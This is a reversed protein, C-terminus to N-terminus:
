TGSTQATNPPVIPLKLEPINHCWLGTQPVYGTASRLSGDNKLIPATTIGRFHRLDWQGELGNLYLLAIDKSLPVPVREITGKVERLKIPRCIEHALVRVAEATVEIARPSCDEEVAVRVPAYGNFLFNDTKAILVALEKATATPDSENIILEPLKSDATAAEAQQQEGAGRSNTRYQRTPQEDALDAHPHRAGYALGDAFTTTFHDEGYEDIQGCTVAAAHLARKVEAADIWGRAIMTGMRIAKDRLTNHRNGEGAAALEDSSAQLAARAWAEGRKRDTTGASTVNIPVPGNTKPAPKSKAVKRPIIETARETWQELEDLAYRGGSYSLVEVPLWDGRKSNHSGPLRMLRPADHVADSALIAQLKKRLEIVRKVDESPEALLWHPQLGHGSDILFTPPCPLTELRNVVQTRTLDHGHDDVDAFVSPLQWCNAATRSTAGERLTATAFYIALENGPQDHEAIFQDVKGRSRTIVHDVEGRRLKSKPNRIACIFVKGQTGRFYQRIFDSGSPMTDAHDIPTRDREPVLGTM